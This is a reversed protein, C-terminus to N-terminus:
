SCPSRNGGRMGSGVGQLSRVFRRDVRGRDLAQLLFEGFGDAGVAGYMRAAGGSAAVAVAQNGGKGGFKPYWRHGVATEDVRPLNDAEVMIDHHLSGVVLVVPQPSM